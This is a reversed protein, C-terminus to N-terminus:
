IWYEKFVTYNPDHKLSYYVEDTFTNIPNERTQLAPITNNFQFALINEQFFKDQEERSACTKNMEKGDKMVLENPDCRHVALRLWAYKDTYFSGYLIDNKGYKPCFKTASQDYGNLVEGVTNNFM